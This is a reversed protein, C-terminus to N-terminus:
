RVLQVAYTTGPPCGGVPCPGGVNGEGVLAVFAGKICEKASADSCEVSYDGNTFAGKPSSFQFALFYPIHYWQNVGTGGPEVPCGDIEQNLPEEPCTSDFMPFMVVQGAYTNLADEVMAASVNGTATIYKWSPLPIDQEPPDLIDAELDSTGGYPVTWDIWGVSGPNGGCLPITLEVGTEWTRTPLEPFSTHGPGCALVTVPFAIPLLACGALTDICGSSPGSVATAPQTLRWQNMGVIRVLATDFARTAYVEVGAAGAPPPGGDVVAGPIVTGTWDTYTASAITVGNTAASLYVENRVQEGWPVLPPPATPDIAEEGARRGLVLAGARAAADAANQVHRQESWAHGGDIILGTMALVAVLAVAFIVIVQGQARRHSRHIGFTM